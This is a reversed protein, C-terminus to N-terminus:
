MVGMGKLYLEAITNGFFVSVTIGMCLYPGFAFSKMEFDPNKKRRYIVSVGYVAALVAGIIFSVLIAKLGLMFGAAAMLVVDGMGMGYVPGNSAIRESIENILTNIDATETNTLKEHKLRRRLKRLAARDESLFVNYILPTIVFSILLLPISVICMGWISETLTAGAFKVVYSKAFFNVYLVSCFAIVAMVSLVSLSIEQTDLDEFGVVIVTAIFLCLL